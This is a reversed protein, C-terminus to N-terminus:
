NQDYPLFILIKPWLLRGKGLLLFFFIGSRQISSPLDRSRCSGRTVYLSVCGGTWHSARISVGPSFSISPVRIPMQKAARAATTTVFVRWGDTTPQQHHNVPQPTKTSPSVVKLRSRRGWPLHCFSPYQKLSVTNTVVYFSPLLDLTAPTYMSMNRTMVYALTRDTSLLLKDETFHQQWSM